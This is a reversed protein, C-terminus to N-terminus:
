YPLMLDLLGDHYSYFVEKSISVLMVRSLGARATATRSPGLSLSRMYDM